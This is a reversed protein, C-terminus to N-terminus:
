KWINLGRTTHPLPLVKMHSLDRATGPPVEICTVEAVVRAVLSIHTPDEEGGKGVRSDEFGSSEGQFPAHWNHHTLYQGGTLGVM